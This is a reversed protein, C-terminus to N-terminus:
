TPHDFVGEVPVTYRPASSRLCFGIQFVIHGTLLAGRPDTATVDIPANMKRYMAVGMCWQRAETGANIEDQQITKTARVHVNGAM